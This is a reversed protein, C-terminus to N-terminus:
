TCANPAIPIINLTISINQIGRLVPFMGIPSPFFEEQRYQFSPLLTTAELAFYNQMLKRSEMQNWKYDQLSWAWKRLIYIIM